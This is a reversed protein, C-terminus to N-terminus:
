ISNTLYQSLSNLTTVIDSKSQLTSTEFKEALAQLLTSMTIDSEDINSIVQVSKGEEFLKFIDSLKIYRSSSTDYLKRNKYKKVIVTSSSVSSLTLTQPNVQAEM